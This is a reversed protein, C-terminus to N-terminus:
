PKSVQIEFHNKEGKKVEFKLGSKDADSFKAVVLPKDDADYGLVAVKYTGPLLGDGARIGGLQFTGDAAIEGSFQQQDSKFVVMGGPVPDGSDYKVSGGGAVQNSSGCGSLFALLVLCIMYSYSKM